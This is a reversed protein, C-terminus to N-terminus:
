KHQTKNHRNLSGKRMIKNCINCEVKEKRQNSIKKKNNKYYENGQELIEKSNDKKYEKKNRSPIICNLTAQLQELYYRERKHLEQKDDCEYKEILVMDWNDWNGNERIFQYVKSNYAKSNENNCRTKHQQKRRTFCCTSGVYIEKIDPNKCCLKYIISKNYNVM